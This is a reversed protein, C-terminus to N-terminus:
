PSRDHHTSHPRYWPRNRQHRDTQRMARAAQGDTVQGTLEPGIDIEVGEVVEDLAGQATRAIHPIDIVHQEKSGIWRCQPRPFRGYLFTQGSHAQGDMRACLRPRHRFPDREQTKHDEWLSSTQFSTLTDIKPTMQSMQHSSPVGM